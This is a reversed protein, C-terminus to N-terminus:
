VEASLTARLGLSSLCHMPVVIDRWDLGSIPAIVGGADKRRFWAAGLRVPIGNAGPCRSTKTSPKSFAAHSVM